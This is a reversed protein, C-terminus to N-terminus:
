SNVLPEPDGLYPVPYVSMPTDQHAVFFLENNLSIGFWIIQSNGWDARDDLTRAQGTRTLTQQFRWVIRM